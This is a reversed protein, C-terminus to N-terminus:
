THEEGGIWFLVFEAADKGFEACILEEMSMNRETEYEGYVKHLWDDLLLVDLRVERFVVWLFLDVVCERCAPFYTKMGRRFRSLASEEL